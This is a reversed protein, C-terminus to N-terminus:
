TSTVAAVDGTSVRNPGAQVAETLAQTAAAMVATIDDGSALVVGASMTIASTAGIASWDHREVRARLRETARLAADLTEVGVALAFETPATRAAVDGRRTATRLIDAFDAVVHDAVEDHGGLRDPDIGELNILALGLHQGSQMARTLWRDLFRRNPLRTLPDELSLAEVLRHRAGQDLHAVRDARHSTLRRAFWGAMDLSTRYLAETDGRSLHVFALRRLVLPPFAEIGWLECSRLCQHFREQAGARHNTRLAVEGLVFLARVTEREGVAGNTAALVLRAEDEAAVDDGDFLRCVARTAAALTVARTDDANWQLVQDALLRARLLHEDTDADGHGIVSADAVALDVHVSAMEALTSDRVSAVDLELSRELIALGRQWLGVRVHGVGVHHLVRAFEPHQRSGRELYSLAEALTEVAETLTGQRRRTEAMLSVADAVLVPDLEDRHGLVASALAEAGSHDGLDALGAAQRLRLQCREGLTTAGEALVAWMDVAARTDGARRLQEARRESAESQPAVKALGV